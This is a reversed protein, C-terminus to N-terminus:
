FEVALTIFFIIILCVMDLAREAVVTGFGETFPVKEYKNLLACRTVEGLRPLAFNALYGVMVSFFTNATTPKHGLPSLLIKWRLSRFYHSLGSIVVSAFLFFYNAKKIATIIDNIEQESKNRLALWILLIGIGLFFFFKLINAIQKKM